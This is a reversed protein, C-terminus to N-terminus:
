NNFDLFLERQKSTKTETILCCFCYKLNKIRFFLWVSFCLNQRVAHDFRVSNVAMFNNLHYKYPTYNGHWAVVDFPSHDQLYFFFRKLNTFLAINIENNNVAYWKNWKLQLLGNM